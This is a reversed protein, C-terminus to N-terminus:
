ICIRAAMASRKLLKYFNIKKGIKKFFFLTTENITNNSLCVNERKM